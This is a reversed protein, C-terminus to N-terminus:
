VLAQRGLARIEQATAEADTSQPLDNIVIDAGRRGPLRLAAALGAWQRHDLSGKWCISEHQRRVSFVFLQLKEVQM